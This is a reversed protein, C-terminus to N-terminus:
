PTHVEISRKIGLKEMKSYLTTAPMNLIVAAGKPGSVRWQTHKLVDIIYKKQYEKMSLYDTSKLKQTKPNFDHLNLRGNVSTIVGREILNKLERVNGPFNYAMLKKIIRQPVDKIKKGMKLGLNESFHKVLLPIDEKRKRLPVSEIPFVNLTYFLDERFNGNRIEEILNKNTAAIIRVDLNITSSGGLREFEGEKLVRLLKSQLEVPIEGIEDLFLTGNKALEFKGTKSKIAGPFAGKEHGFLESEIMHSPLAACDVKILYTDSRDSLRHIARALLEKGTGSEGTILVTSTTSSVQEVQQLVRKFSENDTIIEGFGNKIEIEEALYNKEVELKEKLEKIELLAGRLASEKRRQLTVDRIISASYGQGEFAFYNANIEVDLKRGEKTVHATEIFLRKKAKLDKWMDQYNEKSLSTNLDHISINKIEDRTYGYKFLAFGNANLINGSSDLWFIADNAHRITLESLRAIRDLEKRESIDRTIACCYLEGNIPVFIDTIDVPFITGDKKKHIGEFSSPDHLKNKWHEAWISREMEINIDFISMGLFEEETYGYLECAKKNVIVFDANKDFWFVAEPLHMLAEISPIALDKRDLKM